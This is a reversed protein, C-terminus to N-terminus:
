EIGVIRKAWRKEQELNGLGGHMVKQTQPSGAGHMSEVLATGGSMNEILRLIKM